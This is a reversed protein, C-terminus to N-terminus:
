NEKEIRLGAAMAGIMLWFARMIPVQNMNTDTFGEIFLGTLMLIATMGYTLGSDGEKKHLRWFWCAAGGFLLFYAFLGIIGGESTVKLINNHPHTHGTREQADPSIYKENYEKGFLEQGIGTLPYDKIIDVASQWMLLRESNNQYKMDSLSVLRTQYDPSFAVVSAFMLCLAMVFLLVFRRLKKVGLGLVLLVGFTALWAGRTGSLFLTFTSYCLVFAALKRGWPELIDKTASLLAVPMIVLCQSALFTHTANFGKIHAWDAPGFRIAQVTAWIDNVTASLLFALLVRSLNKRDNIFVYALVLVLFRYTVGWVEKFSVFPNLSALAIIVQLALYAVILKTFNADFPRPFFEKIYIKRGILALVTLVIVTSTAGTSINVTFAMLTILGLIFKDWFEATRVNAM